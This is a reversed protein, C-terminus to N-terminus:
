PPPERQASSSPDSDETGASHAELSEFSLESTDADRAGSPHAGEAALPWREGSPQQSAVVAEASALDRVVCGWARRTWRRAAGEAVANEFPGTSASAATWRDQLDGSVKHLTDLDGVTAAEGAGAKAENLWIACREVAAWDGDAAGGTSPPIDPEETAIALREAKEAIIEAGHKKSGAARLFSALYEGEEASLGALRRRAEAL